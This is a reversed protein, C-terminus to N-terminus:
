FSKRVIAAVRRDYAQGLRHGDTDSYRLDLALKEALAWTVGANWTAYDGEYGVDQYGVAGSLTVTPSLAYGLNIEGYSAAGTDGFYRPAHAVVAGLSAKGLGRSASLKLELYDYDLAKPADPYSYWAAGLDLNWGGFARRVGGYLDLESRTDADGAFRVNEGSVGAYAGGLTLDFSGFVEPKGETQSVGRFVYDTAAGVTVDITPGPAAAATTSLLALGCCAAIAFVYRPM